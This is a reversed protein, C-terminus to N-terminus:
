EAKKYGTLDVLSVLCTQVTQLSDDVEIGELRVHILRKEKNIVNLESTNKVHRSFVDAIFSNFVSRENLPIFSILQKGVLKKREIGLMKGANINVEKIVGDINLTFYPIPAFDFLAVYKNRSIELEGETLRLEHNQHELEIQNVQLLHVLRRIDDASDTTSKKPKPEVKKRAKINVSKKIESKTTKM